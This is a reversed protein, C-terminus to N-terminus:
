VPIRRVAEALREIDDHDCYIQASIRTELGTPTAYVPVELGVHELAARVREAAAVTDGLRAPMRVTVMSGIMQEPTGFDTGWAAALHSGAWWALRHNYAYIADTGYRGMLEIAFPATLFPTPDRTGQLDFEAAMGNDLGWSIVPPHLEARHERASWLIGCSRPAWAWKHLNAAYWDVGLAPIDVPINGPAHAGDALVLVGHRHCEAAIEALPLVLATAATIHDVIAMRTRPGLGSVVADVFESPRAGPRPLEVTRLECANTRAAYRAANTVGGYGLSTVLIEEGPSFPFSRLVANAGSTINDVFVLDDDGAGDGSDQGSAPLGLFRAVAIAAARMHPITGDALREGGEVDALQRLMFRAPQREIEDVLQRQYEIVARPPAGVTGHNLYVVDPDLM